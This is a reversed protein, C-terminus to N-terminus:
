GNGLWVSALAKTQTDALAASANTHNKPAKDKKNM